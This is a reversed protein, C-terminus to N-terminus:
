EQSSEELELQCIECRWLSNQPDTKNVSVIHLIEGDIVQKGSIVVSCDACRFMMEPTVGKAGLISM